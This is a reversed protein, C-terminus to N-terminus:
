CRESSAASIRSFILESGYPGSRCMISLVIQCLSSAAFSSSHSFESPNCCGFYFLRPQGDDEMEKLLGDMLAIEAPSASDEITLRRGRLRIEEATQRELQDALLREADERRQSRRRSMDNAIRRAEDSTTRSLTADRANKCNGFVPYQTAARPHQALAM